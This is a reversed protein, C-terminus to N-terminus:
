LLLTMVSFCFGVSVWRIRFWAVNFICACRESVEGGARHKEGSNRPDDGAAAIHKQSGALQGSQAANGEEGKLAPEVEPLSKGGEKPIEQLLIFFLIFFLIQQNDVSTM